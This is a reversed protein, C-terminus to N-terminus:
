KRNVSYAMLIALVLGIMASSQIGPLFNGCWVGLGLPMQEISYCWDILRIYEIMVVAAGVILSVLIVIIQYDLNERRKLLLGTPVGVLIMTSLTLIAYDLIPSAISTM